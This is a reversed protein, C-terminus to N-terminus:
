RLGWLVIPVLALWAVLRLGSGWRRLGPQLRDLGELLASRTRDFCFVFSVLLLLLQAPTPFYQWLNFAWSRSVM